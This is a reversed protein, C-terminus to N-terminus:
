NIYGCAIWFGWNGDLVIEAGSTTVNYVHNYGSSGENSRYTSCTVAPPAAFTIPFTINQPRTPDYLHGWQIISGDALKQYNTSTSNAGPTQYQHQTGLGTITSTNVAVSTVNDTYVNAWRTAESGIDYSSDQYASIDGQVNIATDYSGGDTLAKFYSTGGNARLIEPNTDGPAKRPIRVWIDPDSVIQIGGAKIEVFNSPTAISLTTDYTPTNDFSPGITHTPFTNTYSGQESGIDGREGSYGNFRISYRFKVNSALSINIIRTQNSQATSNTQYGGTFASAIYDWTGDNHSIIDDSVYNHVGPVGFTYVWENTKIIEVSDVLVLKIDDGDKINIMSEGAVLEIAKIQTNDKLWFGHSDSVRITKGGASVKYVKDVKRKKIQAIEFEDFQNIITNDLKDNWSWALIKQGEVVNEALITEGSSLIIKTDGTVSVM